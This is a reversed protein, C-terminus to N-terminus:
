RAEPECANTRRNSRNRPPRPPFRERPAGRGAARTAAGSPAPLDALIKEVVAPAAVALFRNVPEEGVIEDAGMEILWSLAQRAEQSSMDNQKTQM